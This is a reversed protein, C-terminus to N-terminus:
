PHIIGAETVIADLKEDHPGQPIHDVEQVAFAYGVASIAGQRRLGCLTRDYYGGGYGVRGGQRDFASLPVFLLDPVVISNNDSPVAINFHSRTLEEGCRYVRFLLPKDPGQLVPLCLLAGAKWIADFLPLTDIEDRVAVFAAIIRREDTLLERAHRAATGAATRRDDASLAKRASQGQRRMREQAASIEVADM